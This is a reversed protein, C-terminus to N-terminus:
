LEKIIDWTYYYSINTSSHVFNIKIKKRTKLANIKLFWVVKGLKYQGEEKVMKGYTIDKANFHTTTYSM